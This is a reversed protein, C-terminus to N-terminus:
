MVTYTSEKGFYLGLMERGGELLKKFDSEWHPRQQCGIIYGWGMISEDGKGTKNKEVAGIVM